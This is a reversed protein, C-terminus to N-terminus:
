GAVVGGGALAVVVFVVAGGALGAGDHLGRAV